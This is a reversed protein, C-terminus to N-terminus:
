ALVVAGDAVAVAIATLSRGACPGGVCYGTGVLFRAGHATCVLESRDANLFRDPLIELTVGNHPCSNLYARPGEPSAVVVIERGDALTLGKAGTPELEALTCLVTV